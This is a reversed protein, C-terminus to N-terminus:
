STRGSHTLLRVMAFGSKPTPESARQEPEAMAPALTLDEPEGFEASVNAFGAIVDRNSSIRVIQGDERTACHRPDSTVLYERCALPRVPRIGCSGNQLFPCPVGLAFYAREDDVNDATVGAAALKDAATAINREHETRQESPLTALYSRISRIEARTVPVAQNCCAGCGATCAVEHGAHIRDSDADILRRAHDLLEDASHVVAPGVVLSGHPAPM